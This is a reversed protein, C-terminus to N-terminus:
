SEWKEVAAELKSIFPKLDALEASSLKDGRFARIMLDIVSPKAAFQVKPMAAESVIARYEEQIMKRLEFKKM